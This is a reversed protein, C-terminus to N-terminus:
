ARGVIQFTRMGADTVFNQAPRISATGAWRLGIQTLRQFTGPSRHPASEGHSQREREAERGNGARASHCRAAEPV